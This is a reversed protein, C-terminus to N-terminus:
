EKGAPKPDIPENTMMSTKTASSSSTGLYYAMAGVWVVVISDKIGIILDKNAPEITVFALIVFMSFVAITLLYALVKPTTVDTYKM